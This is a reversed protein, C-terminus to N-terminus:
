GRVWSAPLARNRGCLARAAALLDHSVHIAAAPFLKYLGERVIGRNKDTSCGAGYFYIERV